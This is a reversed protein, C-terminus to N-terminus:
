APVVGDYIEDLSVALELATTPKFVLPDKGQYLNVKWDSGVRTYLEIKREDQYVIAYQNLGVITKYALLKERRDIDATSPSLVEVILNPSTKYVSKASFPECTVMLDPYYFSDVAKVRIKMDSVFLRCGSAKIKSGVALAINMVITNHAETSGVMAFIRGSVYEHRVDSSQEQKLYEDVSVHLNSAPLSM